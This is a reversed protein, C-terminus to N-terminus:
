YSAANVVNEGYYKAFLEKLDTRPTRDEGLSLVLADLVFEQYLKIADENIPLELCTQLPGEFLRVVLDPIGDAPYNDRFAVWFRDKNVEEPKGYDLPVDKFPYGTIWKSDKQKHPKMLVVGPVPYVGEREKEEDARTVMLVLDNGENTTLYLFRSDIGSGPTIQTIDAIKGGVNKGVYGKGNKRVLTDHGEETLNNLNYQLDRVNRELGTLNNDEQQYSSAPANNGVNPPLYTTKTTQCGLLAGATLASCLLPRFNM